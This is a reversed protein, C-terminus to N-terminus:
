VGREFHFDHAGHLLLRLLICPTMLLHAGFFRHAILMFCIDTFQFRLYASQNEITKQLAANALCICRQSTSSIAHLLFVFNRQTLISGAV